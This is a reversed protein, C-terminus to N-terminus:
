TDGLDDAFGAPIDARALVYTHIAFLVARTEPLRVIVQRESRLYPAPMDGAMRTVTRSRPQFLAADQYWLRNFRWLPRDVQVGDFLRQVRRALSADYVDVPRHIATLRRGIKESLRWSAPFCLVAATLVHERTNQAKEMLCLDAQCLRGLTELPAGDAVWADDPCRWGTGERQFGLDPLQASVLAHLEEVAAAADPTEALVEARRTDLLHRRLAVQGAYAADVRLWPGTQPQVGPLPRLAHMDDPLDPHLVLTMAISKCSIAM